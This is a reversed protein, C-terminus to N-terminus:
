IASVLMQVPEFSTWGIAHILAVVLLNRTKYYPIVFGFLGGLGTSLLAAIGASLSNGSLMSFLMHSLGFLFASGLITTVSGYDQSLREQVVGRYFSEEMLAPIIFAVLFSSAGAMTLTAELQNSVSGAGVSPDSLNLFGSVEQFLFGSAGMMLFGAVVWVFDTINLSKHAWARLNESSFAERGSCRCVYSFSFLAFGLQIGRASITNLWKIPLLNQFLHELAGGIFAVGFIGFFSGALMLFTAAIMGNSKVSAWKEKFNFM